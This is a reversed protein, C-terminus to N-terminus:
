RVMCGASLARVRQVYPLARIKPILSDHVMGRMLGRTQSRPDVVGLQRLRVLDDERIPGDYFVDVILDLRTTDRVAFLANRLDLDEILAPLAITDIEVRLAPVNFVHLIRGGHMIVAASDAATVVRPDIDTRSLSFEVVIRQRQEVPARLVCPRRAAGVGFM